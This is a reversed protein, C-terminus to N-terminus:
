ARLLSPARRVVVVLMMAREEQLLPTETFAGLTAFGGIHTWTGRRFVTCM